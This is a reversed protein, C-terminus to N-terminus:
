IKMKRKIPDPQTLQLELEIAKEQKLYNNLTIEQDNGLSKVNGFSVNLKYDIYKSKLSVFHKEMTRQMQEDSFKDVYVTFSKNKYDNWFRKDFVINKILDEPQSINTVNAHIKCIEFDFSDIFNKVHYSSFLLDVPYEDQSNSLKIVSIIKDFMYNDSSLLDDDKISQNRINSLPWMSKAFINDAKLKSSLFETLLKCPIDDIDKSKTFNEAMKKVFEEDCCKENLLTQSLAYVKKKLESETYKHQTLEKYLNSTDMDDLSSFFDHFKYYFENSFRVNVLIDLDKINDPNIILDRLAGGVLKTEIKIPLVEEYASLFDNVTKVTKLIKEIYPSKVKFGEYVSILSDISSSGLKQDDVKPEFDDRDINNTAVLLISSNLGLSKLYEINEQNNSLINM